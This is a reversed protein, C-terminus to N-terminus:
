SSYRSGDVHLAPAQDIYGIYLKQIIIAPHLLELLLFRQTYGDYFDLVVIKDELWPLCGWAHLSLFINVM